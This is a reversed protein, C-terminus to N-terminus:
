TRYVICTSLVTRLFFCLAFSSVVIELLEQPFNIRWESREIVTNQSSETVLSVIM